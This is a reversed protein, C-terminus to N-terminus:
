SGSEQPLHVPPVPMLAREIEEDSVRRVLEARRNLWHRIGWVGAMQGRLRSRAAAGRWSRLASFTIQLQAILIKKWHKKWLSSPYNKALVNIFNRGVYYSGYEGGGTASVHHYVIARPAYAIAYGAWRARWNIDVDELNAVLEEDFLGIEDLMSKRYAGAGGCAGFVGRADDYQGDDREWVGRNGPIGDVRYYDGASHLYDRRDFLKLKCAVIGTNPNMEFRQAIEALWDPDAETDNNLLVVIDGHAARIGANVGHAFGGNPHLPIVRMEPYNDKVFAVSEDTSADDVVIVEFDRYTQGRLANLCTPLFRLGNWTPIIVSFM